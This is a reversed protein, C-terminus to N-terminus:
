AAFITFKALLISLHLPFEAVGNQGVEQHPSIAKLQEAFHFCSNREALLEFSHLQINHVKHVM